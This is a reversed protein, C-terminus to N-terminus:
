RPGASRDGALVIITNEKFKSNELADLIHGAYDAFYVSALYARVAEKWQM